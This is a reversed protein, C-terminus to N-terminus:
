YYQTFSGSGGCNPCTTSTGPLRGAGYCRPCVIVHMEPQYSPGGDVREFIWFQNRSGSVYHWLSVTAGDAINGGNLDVAYERNCCSFIGYNSFGAPIHIDWIQANTANWTWVQLKGGDYVNSGSLDLVFNENVTSHIVFRGYYHTIRWKQANTGNYQWLQVRGGDYAQSNSLDLVYNTNIASRIVYVGDPIDAISVIAQAVFFLLAIVKKNM